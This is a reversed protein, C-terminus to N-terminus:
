MVIGTIKNTPENKAEVTTGNLASANNTPHRATPKFTITHKANAVAPFQSPPSVDYPIPLIPLISRMSFHNLTLGSFNSLWRSLTARHPLRNANTVHSGITPSTNAM